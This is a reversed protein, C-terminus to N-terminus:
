RGQVWLRLPFDHALYFRGDVYDLSALALDPIADVHERQPASHLLGARFATLVMPPCVLLTARGLRQDGISRLARAFRDAAESLSEGRPSGGPSAFVDDAWAAWTETDHPPDVADVDRLEERVTVGVGRAAAMVEATEMAATAPGTMVADFPPLTAVTVEAGLRGDASLPPGEPGVRPWDVAGHRLLLLRTRVFTATPTDM